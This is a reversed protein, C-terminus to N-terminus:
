WSVFSSARDNWGLNSLISRWTGGRTWLVSGGYRIHEYITQGNFNDAWVSSTEDNWDDCFWLTCSINWQRLDPLGWGPGVSLWAGWFNAHEYIFTRNYVVAAAAENATGAPAQPGVPPRPGKSTGYTLTDPPAIEPPRTLAHPPGGQAKVFREFDDPKTFVVLRGDPGGDPLAAMYLPRGNYKTITEPPVSKGDITLPVRPAQHVIPKNATQDADDNPAASAPAAAALAAASMVAVAGALLRGRSRWGIRPRIVSSYRKM